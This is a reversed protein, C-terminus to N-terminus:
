CTIFSTFRILCWVGHGSDDKQVSEMLLSEEERGLDPYDNIEGNVFIASFAHM